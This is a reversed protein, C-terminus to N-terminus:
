NLDILDAVHPQLPRQSQRARSQRRRYRAKDGNNQSHSVPPTPECGPMWVPPCAGSPPTPLLFRRNVSPHQNKAPKNSARSNSTNDSSSNNSPIHTSPPLDPASSPQMHMGNVMNTLSNIQQQLLTVEARLSQMDACCHYLSGHASGSGASGTSSAGSTATSPTGSANASTTPPDSTASSSHASTPQPVSPTTSHVHSTSGSCPPSPASPTSPAPPASPTYGPPPQTSPAPPASPTYGPPPQTSPAPPASPIYDPPSQSASYSSQSPGFYRTHLQETQINEFYKIRESLIFCTEESDKLKRELSSIKASAASLERKMLENEIAEPNTQVANRKQRRSPPARAPLPLVSPQLPFNSAPPHDVMPQFTYSPFTPPLFALPDSHTFPPLHSQFSIQPSPPIISSIPTVNSSTVALGDNSIVAPSDM